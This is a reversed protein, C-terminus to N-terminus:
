KKRNSKKFETKSRTQPINVSSFPELEILWPRIEAEDEKSDEAVAETGQQLIRLPLGYVPLGYVPMVGGITLEGVRCKKGPNAELQITTSGPGTGSGGEVITIWDLYDSNRITWKVSSGAKITLEHTGGEKPVVFEAFGYHGIHSRCDSKGSQESQAPAMLPVCLALGLCQVLAPIRFM